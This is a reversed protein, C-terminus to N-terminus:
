RYWHLPHEYASEAEVGMVVIVIILGSTKLNTMFNIFFLSLFFPLDTPLNRTGDFYSTIIM